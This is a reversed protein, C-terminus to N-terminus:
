EKIGWKAIAARYEPNNIEGRVAQAMAKTGALTGM